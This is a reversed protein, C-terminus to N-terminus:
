GVRREESRGIKEPRAGIGGLRGVIGLTPADGRARRGRTGPVVCRVVDTGGVKGTFRKVEVEKVGAARIADAVERGTVTAADLLDLSQLVATLPM